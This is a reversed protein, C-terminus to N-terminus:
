LLDKIGQFVTEAVIEHGKENPHIGDALNLNKRGAVDELLFPILKVKYKKALSRFLEEYEHTYKEGYNPPPRIGALVVRVKKQQAIEIAQQLNKKTDSIRLGRLADNGGLALLVMDPKNKLVWNMRSPASASTSGSIGSNVVNWNKGAQAIKKQLISSYAAEKAVGFGETLSDGLLVISKQPSAFSLLSTFILFFFPLKM